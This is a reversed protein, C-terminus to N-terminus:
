RVSVFDPLSIDESINGINLYFLWIILFFFDLLLNCFAALYFIFFAFFFELLPVFLVLTRSGIFLPNLILVKFSQM